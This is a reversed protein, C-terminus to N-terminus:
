FTAGPAVSRFRDDFAGSVVRGIEGTDAHIVERSLAPGGASTQRAARSNPRAAGRILTRPWGCLPEHFRSM